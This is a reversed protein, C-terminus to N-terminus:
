FVSSALLGRGEQKIWEACTKSILKGDDHDNIKVVETADMRTISQQAEPPGMAERYVARADVEDEAVVWHREGDEILFVHM